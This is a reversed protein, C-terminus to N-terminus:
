QKRYIAALAIFNIICVVILAPVLIVLPRTVFFDTSLAFFVLTCFVVLLILQVVSAVLVQRLKSNM